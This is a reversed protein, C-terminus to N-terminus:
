QWPTGHLTEPTNINLFDAPREFCVSIWACARVWEGVRREGQGLKDQLTLRTDRHALTTTWHLRREGSAPDISCPVAVLAGAEEAAQRLRGVLDAPLAPSDCPSFQLWETTAQRLGTLMGSLPGARAPLDGDDPLVPWDWRRYDDLHRNANVTLQKVQPALRRATHLALAQGHWPLLGKDQGGM